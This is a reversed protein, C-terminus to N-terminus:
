FANDSHKPPNLIQDSVPDFNLGSFLEIFLVTEVEFHDIEFM